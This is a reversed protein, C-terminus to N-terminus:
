SESMLEEPKGFEGHFFDRVASRGLARTGTYAVGSSVVSGLFPVLKVTQRAM